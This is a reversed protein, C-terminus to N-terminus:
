KTCLSCSTLGQQKHWIISSASWLAIGFISTLDAFAPSDKHHLLLTSSKAPIPKTYADGIDVDDIISDTLARQTFEYYSNQHKKIAVGVYDAPHGQDEIELGSETIDRIAKTISDDSGSIFIGDDVYVIFIVDDRYFVCEDVLSSKFGISHLKEVMYANWVRGAQKQGYLNALLKLVHDKSNGHRTEIGQPLEMYMDTEIPAQPYAQVFNIQRLALSLIISLTVTVRIAFWTVVPAYTEFYNMGFVQKGGHLNLRSKYKTIRNTTLDCKRRMSWVSPITDIGEPIEDRHVLQWRNNDIHGNVEKV